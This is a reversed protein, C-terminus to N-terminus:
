QAAGKPGGFRKRYEAENIIQRSQLRHRIREAYEEFDDEPKALKQARGLYDLSAVKFEEAGSVAFKCAYASAVSAVAHPSSPELKMMELARQLFAEYDHRDFSAGIRASLLVRQFGPESGFIGQAALLAKEAETSKDHSLLSIGRYFSAVSALDASGPVRAAAASMTAAAEDVKKAELLRGAARIELLAQFYRANLVFALAVVVAVAAASVKIWTPFPYNRVFSICRSCLPAGGVKALDGSGWDTGCRSCITPDSNRVVTGPALKNLDHGALDEDACKECLPNNGFVAYTEGLPTDSACKLCATKRV